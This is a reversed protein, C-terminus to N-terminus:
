GRYRRVLGAEVLGRWQAALRGAFDEDEILVGAEVNREQGRETFNASGILAFRSDVVVCKAHLSCWPPGKVATRPDYFVDPRPPGFPWNEVFFEDIKAHAYADARATDGTEGEIDLFLMAHVGRESMAQHLPRLIDEGHDFSYGAVIVSDRAQEFLRRVVVSTDRTASAPGEPGTWVLELRPPARHVREAIAVTLSLEVGAREIAGLTAALAASWTGFGGALLGSETVPCPVLGRRVAQLLTELTAAPIASLAKPVDSM